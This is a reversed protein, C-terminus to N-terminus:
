RYDAPFLCELDLELWDTLVTRRHQTVFETLVTRRHQTVFETLVTRRHQTVFETLVTHIHQTIALRHTCRAHATHIIVMNCELMDIWPQSTRADTECGWHNRLKSCTKMSISSQKLLFTGVDM